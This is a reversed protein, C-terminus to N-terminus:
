VKITDIIEAKIKRKTKTIFFFNLIKFTKKTKQKIAHISGYKLITFFSMTFFSFSTLFKLEFASNLSTFNLYGATVLMLAIVLIVLQNRKLVKM